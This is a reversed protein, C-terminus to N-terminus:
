LKFNKFSNLVNQLDNDISKEVDNWDKQLENELQQLNNEVKADRELQDSIDRAVTEFEEKVHEIPSSLTFDEKNEKINKIVKEMTENSFGLSNQVTKTWQKAGQATSSPNQLFSICKAYEIKLTNWDKNTVSFQTFKTNQLDVGLAAAAPSLVNANRINQLRRNVMQFVRKIEKKANPTEIELTIINRDLKIRRVKKLTSESFFYDKKPIIM